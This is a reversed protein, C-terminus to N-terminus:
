QNYWQSATVHHGDRILLDVDRDFSNTSWPVYVIGNPTTVHGKIRIAKNENAGTKGVMFYFAKDLDEEELNERWRLSLYCKFGNEHLMYPIFCAGVPVSSESGEMDRLILTDGDCRVTDGVFFPLAISDVVVRMNERPAVIAELYIRSKM